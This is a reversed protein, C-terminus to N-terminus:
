ATRKWMYVVIYPQLNNHAGDSGTSGTNQSGSTGVPNTTWYDEAGSNTGRSVRTVGTHTHAPLESTILTHTKAGGTEEVSDFETQGSDIGILTRGAGFASWTGTGLLTAPNTSVISIYISGVPYVANIITSTATTPAPLHSGVSSIYSTSSSTGTISLNQVPMSIAGGTEVETKVKSPTMYNTDNTAAAADAGSAKVLISPDPLDRNVLGDGDDNWSIFSGAEPSPLETNAGSSSIPYRLTRATEEQQEQAIMVVRDIDKELTNAPFANYDDYDSEQLIATERYVTYTNLTSVTPSMTVTGGVGDSDVAVTYHANYTFVTIEGTSTSTAIVKIDEPSTPLARFSFTLAAQGGAFNQKRITTEVTM